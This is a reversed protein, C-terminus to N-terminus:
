RRNKRREEREALYRNFAAQQTDDLLRRIQSTQLQEIAQYEPRHKEHLERYLLRTSDLVGIFKEMQEASLHLRSQMENLYQKRYEDSRNTNARVVKSSYLWHGLAGVAIGSGFTLLVYAAATLNFRRM